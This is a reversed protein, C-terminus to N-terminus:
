SDDLFDRLSRWEVTRRVRYIHLSLILNRLTALSWGFLFGCILAYGFGVAAGVATVTYGPFYQNLLSLSPGSVEGGRVILWMTALFVALGTALGVAIGLAVEDLRAFARALLEQPGVEGSPERKDEELYAEEENVEWVDHKAGLVNRAALLGTRMSHDMNNYRHVGSRGITQLNEITSLFGKIVRRQKQYESDYVPYANSQRFVVGEEVQQPEVLGLTTLEDIALAVLDGDGLSWVEDGEDCFYEVGLSTKRLDPVMAASWNKINQIRGAKVEPSHLYIWNDPFLDRQDVILGVILFSRYTLKRAAAVVEEPPPPDLRAILEPLPMSSIFMDSNWETERSGSRTVLSEIRSDSRKLSVAEMELRVEGGGDEISQRFREWMMGPGLAPYHFRDILTKTENNGLLANLIAAKLSLGKIRQAAWDARIENCPIGWVKETYTKFFVEYLRRGFRNTVWQEFTNEQAYPQVQAKLYSLVILLSELVGLSGLTSTIDLPYNFFRGRYAIRSLREVLLLDDGLMQHWLQDVERDKTFFRHGGIDFRFGHHCETRAIGGVKDAKELVIPRVGQRVLEYAATLGAPGAGIVTVSYIM